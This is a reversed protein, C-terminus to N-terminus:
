VVYKDVVERINTQVAEPTKDADVVRVRESALAAISLFGERVRRHFAMNEAEIRDDVLLTEQRGAARKMGVEPPLDLLITLDPTLGCAAYRNLENIFELNQRRGYGQYATTSDYFRDCLVVAGREISPIILNRVHQARSAAFLLVETEDTITEEGVHHKVIDRLREAVGTGGPERTIVCECAWKAVLYARLLHIQTTKGAGEPGEFTIFFGKRM